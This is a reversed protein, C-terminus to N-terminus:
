FEIFANAGHKRPYREYHMDSITASLLQVGCKHRVYEVAQRWCETGTTWDQM